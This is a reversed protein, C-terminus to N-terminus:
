RRRPPLASVFSGYTRWDAEYKECTPPACQVNKRSELRPTNLCVAGRESWVAEINPLPEEVDTVGARDKWVLKVGPKTHFVGDGCYNATFMNLGAQRQGLSTHFPNPEDVKSEFAQVHKLRVLKAIPDGACSVNFWAGASGGIAFIKGTDADYRDGRSFLVWDSSVGYDDITTKHCVDVFTNSNDLAAYQLRYAWFRASGDYTVVYRADTIYVDVIQDDVAQAGPLKIKLRTGVVDSGDLTRENTIVKADVGNVRFQVQTLGRWASQLQMGKADAEGNLNLEHFPYDHIDPSNGTCLFDDCSIGAAQRVVAVRENSDVGCAALLTAGLITSMQIKM